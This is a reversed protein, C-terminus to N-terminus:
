KHITTDVPVLRFNIRDPWNAKDAEALEESEWWNLAKPDFHGGGLQRNYIRITDFQADSPKPGKEFVMKREAEFAEKPKALKSDRQGVLVFKVDRETEFQVQKSGIYAIKTM